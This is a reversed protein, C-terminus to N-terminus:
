QFSLIVLYCYHNNMVYELCYFTSQFENIIYEVDEVTCDYVSSTKNTHLSLSDTVTSYSGSPKQSKISVAYV